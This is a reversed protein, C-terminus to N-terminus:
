HSRRLPDVVPCLIIGHPLLVNPHADAGRSSGMASFPCLKRDAIHQMRFLHGLLDQILKEVGQQSRNRDFLGTRNRSSNHVSTSQTASRVCMTILLTM